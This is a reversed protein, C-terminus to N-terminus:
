ARSGAKCVEKQDKVPVKCTKDCARVTVAGALGNRGLPNRVEMKTTCCAAEKCPDAHVPKSNNQGWNDFRPVGMGGFSVTALILSTALTAIKTKM